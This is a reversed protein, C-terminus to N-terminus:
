SWVHEILNLDPSYPPWDITPFNRRYLNDQTEFSRHCSSSAGDHQWVLRIGRAREAEFWRQIQSLIVTNYKRSDMSGWEKEWFTGPGKKGGCITGHFMWAPQKGYKHQLCEPRYRDARIEEPGGNVLCTVWSQTFAGGHAWVEDSFIQRYLRERTWTLGDQAFALRAAIVAPDDSFGKRKAVRREYGVSRFATRIAEFGYEQLGLEPAYAPLHHFSVHRHSPDSLLWAKMEQAKEMSIIPKRGCHKARQPTNPQTKALRIQRLTYGYQNIYRQHVTRPTAFDLASKIRIRDSRTTERAYPRTPTSLSPRPTNLLRHIDM